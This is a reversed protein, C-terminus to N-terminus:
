VQKVSTSLPPKVVIRPNIRLLHDIFVQQQRPSLILRQRKELRLQIRDMSAAPASELSTTRAIETIRDIDFQKKDFIGCQVQLTKGEITYRTNVLTDVIFVTLIVLLALGIWVSLYIMLAYVPLLVLAILAVLGWSIGSRYITKM